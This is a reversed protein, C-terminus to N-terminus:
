DSLMDFPRFGEDPFMDSPALPGHTEFAVPLENGRAAAVGDREKALLHGQSAALRAINAEVERVDGPQVALKVVAVAVTGEAIQAAGVAELDIAHADGLADQM